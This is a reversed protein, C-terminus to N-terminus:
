QQESYLITGVAGSIKGDADRLLTQHIQAHILMGQPRQLLVTGHHEAITYDHPLPEGNIQYFIQQIAPRKTRLEGLEMQLIHELYASGYEIRGYVDTVYLGVTARELMTNLKDPSTSRLMDPLLQKGARQEQYSRGRILTYGSPRNLPELNFVFTRVQDHKAMPLVVQEPSSNYIAHMIRDRDIKSIGSREMIGNLGESNNQTMNPFIESVGSNAYVISGDRHVIICFISGLSLAQAYLMNQYETAMVLDLSQQKRYVVYFCLAGLLTTSLLASLLPSGLMDPVFFLTFIVAITISCAIVVNWIQNRRERPVFDLQGPTSTTTDKFRMPPHYPSCEM